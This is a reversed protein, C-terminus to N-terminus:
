KVRVHDQDLLQVETEEDILHSHCFMISTQKSEIKNRKTLIENEGLDSTMAIQALTKPVRHRIELTRLPGLLSSLQNQSM